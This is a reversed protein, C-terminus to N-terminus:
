YIMRQLTSLPVYARQNIGPNDEDKDGEFVLMPEYVQLHPMGPVVYRVKSHVVGSVTVNGANDYM